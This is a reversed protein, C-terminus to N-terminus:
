EGAFVTKSCDAHPNGTFQCIHAGTVVGAGGNLKIKEADVTAEGTVNVAVKGKAEINLTKAQHNYTLKSGDPLQYVTEALNQSPAPNADSYLGVIAIAQNLDGSPSLLLVQEGETPPNWSKSQGARASVWLIPPTENDGTEVVCTATTADVSKITGIRVLNNILRLLETLNPM